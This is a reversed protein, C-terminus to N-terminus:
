NARRSSIQRQKLQVEDHGMDTCRQASEIVHHGVYVGHYLVGMLGVDEEEDDHSVADREYQLLNPQTLNQSSHQKINVFHTFTKGINRM